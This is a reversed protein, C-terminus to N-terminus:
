SGRRPRRLRGGGHGRVRAGRSEALHSATEAPTPPPNKTAAPHPATPAAAPPTPKTAPVAPPSPPAPAAPKIRDQQLETPAPNNKAITMVQKVVIGSTIALVPGAILIMWLGWGIEPGITKGLIETKRSSVEQADIVGILFALVGAIGAVTGLGIMRKSRVRTRGFNLLAFLCLAAIIGLILTITGDAGEGINNRSIGMFAIWPGISGVAVGIAAALAAILNPWYYPADKIQDPRLEPDDPLATPPPTTM